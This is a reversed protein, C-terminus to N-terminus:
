QNKLIFAQIILIAELSAQDKFERLSSGIEKGLKVVTSETRWCSREKYGYFLPWCYLLKRKKPFNNIVYKNYSLLWLIILFM